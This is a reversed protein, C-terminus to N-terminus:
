ENKNKLGHYYERLLTTDKEKDTFV